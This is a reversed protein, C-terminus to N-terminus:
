VLSSSYSRQSIFLGNTKVIELGLFPHVEGLKKMEFHISLEDRLQSIEANNDGTIIMDDVYLLLVIYMSSTFKVFLSPNSSSSNFGCFSLYQVIQGYISPVHLKNSVMYHRKSSVCMILFNMDSLDKLSSWIFKM